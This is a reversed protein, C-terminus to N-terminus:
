QLAVEIFMNRMRERYKDLTFNELFYKRAATGMSRRLEPNELLIQLKEALMVPSKPPVLFGSEGDKVLFPVSRWETAVVPLAFMMAELIVVSLNEAEFYTPFCFVDADAYNKWKEENLIVGLLDVIESLFSSHLFNYIREVVESAGQGAIRLRFHISRDRLIKAAELLDFIGKTEYLAGVYLISPPGKKKLKTFRHNEDEIGNPIVFIRKAKILYGDPPSLPTLHIAADVRSLALQILMRLWVPYSHYSESLGAGHFHLILKKFLWRTSGVIAIDRLVALFRPGSMTYYFIDNGKVLRTHVIMAIVRFVEVIKRIAFRGTEGMDKSFRMPVHILEIDDYQSELTKQLMIAQGGYPPPVQGVVAVKIINYRCRLSENM